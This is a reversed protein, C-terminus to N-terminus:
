KGRHILPVGCFSRFKEEKSHRVYFYGAHQSPEIINLILESKLVEGVLGKGPPIVVPHTQILGHSAIMKLSDNTQRQYM